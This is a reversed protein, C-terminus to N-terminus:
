PNEKTLAAPPHPTTASPEVIGHLLIGTVDSVSMGSTEGFGTAATFALTRIVDAADDTSIRLREAYPVLHTTICGRLEAFADESGTRDPELVPGLGVALRFVTEFRDVLVHVLRDITAELTAGHDVPLESIDFAQSLGRAFAERLLSDKDGFSRFLTGEAVGAADALQRSTITAGHELLAPLTADLIQARRDDLTM